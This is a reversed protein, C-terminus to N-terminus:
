MNSHPGRKSINFTFQLEFKGNTEVTYDAHLQDLQARILNLGLSSSESFNYGDTFGPGNDKYTFHVKDDSSRMLIDIRGDFTKLFAYKFSNTLLENFLLGLPIAQNINLKYEELDLNTVVENKTQMTRQIAPILQDLYNKINVSSLRETEYMLEHVMAISHIRNISRQLPLKHEHDVEMSQLELLGSVIALNNKVRHHIESLLTTKERLADKLVEEQEKRQSIDIFTTAVRLVDGKKDLLPNADVQLWVYSGVKPNYVGMIVNKIHKKEAIARAAPLEDAPFPAEDSKIIKWGEDYVTLGYLQDKTLGLLEEAKTNSLLIASHEDQVVVGIQLDDFLFNLSKDFDEDSLQEKEMAIVDHGVHIINPDETHGEHLLSCEWKISKYRDTDRIKHKNILQVSIATDGDAETFKGLTRKLSSIEGISILDTLNLDESIQGSALFANVYHENSLLVDGKTNTVVAYLNKSNSM